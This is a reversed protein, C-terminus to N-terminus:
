LSLESELTGGVIIRDVSHNDVMREVWALKNTIKTGGVIALIPRVPNMVVQLSPILFDPIDFMACAPCVQNLNDLERAIQFGFTKWQFGAGLMTTSDNTHITAFVDNVFIDAINAFGKYFSALAAASMKKEEDYSPLKELLILSRANPDNCFTVVSPGCCSRIFAAPRRLIAAM